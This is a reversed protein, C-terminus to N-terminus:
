DMQWTIIHFFRILYVDVPLRLVYYMFALLALVCVFVTLWFFPNESWHKDPTSAPWSQYIEPNPM